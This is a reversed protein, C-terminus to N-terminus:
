YYVVSCGVSGTSGVYLGDGFYVPVGLWYMTGAVPTFSAFMATGGTITGTSNDYVYLTPTNAAATVMIGLFKGSGTKALISGSSMNETPYALTTHIAYNLGTDHSTRGM